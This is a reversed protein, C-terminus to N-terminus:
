IKEGGEYPRNDMWRSDERMRRCFPDKAGEGHGLGDSPEICWPMVKMREHRNRDDQGGKGYSPPDTDRTFLPGWTRRILGSAEPDMREDIRDSVRWDDWGFGERKRKRDELFIALVFSIALIALLTCPLEM